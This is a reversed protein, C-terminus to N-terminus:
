LEPPHETQIPRALKQERLYIFLGAAIIIAAGAIVQWSPVDGFVLYGFIVAFVIMLYQYPVVVSAPAFKLSRNVCVIAWLAVIGLLALLVPDLWDVFPTWAFPAFVIGVVLGAGIQWAAMIADPTGRLTRTVVLFVAYLISGALAIWTPWGFSSASPQLALVVGGFGVLVAAWRRWGVREGLFIAALLTVYVPGALYYTMADALPLYAVAAYFFGTEVAALVARMAQLGPRRIEILSRIGMRGIIPALM